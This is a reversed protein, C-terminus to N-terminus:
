KLWKPGGAESKANIILAHRLVRYYNRKVVLLLADSLEVVLKLM